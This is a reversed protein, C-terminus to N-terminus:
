HFKKGKNQKSKTQSVSIVPCPAWLGPAQCFITWSKVSKPNIEPAEKLKKLENEEKQKRMIELRRETEAHKLMMRQPLDKETTRALMKSTKLIQPVQKIEKM